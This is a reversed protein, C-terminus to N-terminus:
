ALSLEIFTSSVPDVPERWTVREGDMDVLGCAVLCILHRYVNLESLGTANAIEKQATRRESRIFAVLRVRKENALAPLICLYPPAPPRAGNASVWGHMEERFSKRLVHFIKVAKEDSYDPVARYLCYRGARTCDVLGCVDKLEALYTSTAPQGIRVADAIQGVPVGEEEPSCMVKRLVDIREENALKKCVKWFARKSM